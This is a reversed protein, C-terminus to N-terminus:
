EDSSGVLAYDWQPPKNQKPLNKNSRTVTAKASSHRDPTDEMNKALKCAESVLYAANTELTVAIDNITSLTPSMDGKEIKRLHSNSIPVVRAFERQSKFKKARMESIVRGLAKKLLDNDIPQHSNTEKDM